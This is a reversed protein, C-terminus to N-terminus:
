HRYVPLSLQDGAEDTRARGFAAGAGRCLLQTLPRAERHIHVLIRDNASLWLPEEYMQEASRWIIQESGGSLPM